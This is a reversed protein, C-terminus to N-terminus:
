GRYALDIHSLPDNVLHYNWMGEAPKATECDIIVMADSVGFDGNLWAIGHRWAGGPLAQYRCLQFKKPKKPHTAM